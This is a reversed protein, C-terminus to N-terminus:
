VIVLSTFLALLLLPPILMWGVLLLADVILVMLLCTLGVAIWGLRIVVGIGRGVVAYDQHLPQLTVLQKLMVLFQFTDEVLAILFLSFFFLISLMEGYWWRLWYVPQLYVPRCPKFLVREFM